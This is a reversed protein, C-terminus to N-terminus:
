RVGQRARLNCMRLVVAALYHSLARLQPALSTADPANPGALPLNLQWATDASSPSSHCSPSATAPTRYARAARASPMGASRLSTVASACKVMTHSPMYLPKRPLQVFSCYGLALMTRVRAVDQVTDAMTAQLDIM